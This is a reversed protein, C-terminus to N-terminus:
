PEIGITLTYNFSCAKFQMSDFVSTHKEGFPKDKPPSKKHADKCKKCIRLIIFQNM